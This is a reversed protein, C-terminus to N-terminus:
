AGPVVHHLWTGASSGRQDPGRSSLHRTDASCMRESFSQNFLTSTNWARNATFTSIRGILQPHCNLRRLICHRTCSIFPHKNCHVHCYRFPNLRCPLNSSSTELTNVDKIISRQPPFMRVTSAFEAALAACTIRCGALSNRSVQLGIKGLVIRFSLHGLISCTEQM